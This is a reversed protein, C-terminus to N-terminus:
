VFELVVVLLLTTTEAGGLLGEGLAVAVGSGIEVGAADVGCGGDVAAVALVRMDRQQGVLFGTGEVVGDVGERGGQVVCQQHQLM